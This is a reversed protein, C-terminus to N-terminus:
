GGSANAATQCGQTKEWRHPKASESLPPNALHSVYNSIVKLGAILVVELVQQHSFGAALFDDVAWDPVQGRDRVVARAFRRLAELSPVSVRTRDRLASLVDANVGLRSAWATHSAVCYSCENEVSIAIAIVQQEAPTFSTRAVIETLTVYGELAAPAEALIRYLNPISGLRVEAEILIPQSAPPASGPTHLPFPGNM